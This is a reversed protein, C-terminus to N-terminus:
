QKKSFASSSNLFARLIVRRRSTNRACCERTNPDPWGFVSVMFYNYLGIRFGKLSRLFNINNENKIELNQFNKSANPFPDEIILDSSYLITTMYLITNPKKEGYYFETVTTNIESHFCCSHLKIIV